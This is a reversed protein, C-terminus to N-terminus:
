VTSVRPLTLSLLLNFPSKYSRFDLVYHMTTGSQYLDDLLILTKGSMDRAGNQNVVLNSNSLVEWKKAINEEQLSRTKNEFRITETYDEIEMVRALSQAMLLPLCFDKGTSSPVSVIGDADQYFSMNSIFNSLKEQLFIGSERSQDEKAKHEHRGVETYDGEPGDLNMDIAVMCPLLSRIFVTRKYLNLFDEFKKTQEENTIGYWYKGGRKLRITILFGLM